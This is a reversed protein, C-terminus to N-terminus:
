KLKRFMSGYRNSSTTKQNNRKTDPITKTLSTSPLSVNATRKVIINSQHQKIFKLVEDRTNNVWQKQTSLRVDIRHINYKVSWEKLVMTFDITNYYQLIEEGISPKGISTNVVNHFAHINRVLHDITPNININFNDYSVLHRKAHKSCFSCPVNVCINRILDLITKKHSNYFSQTLTLPFTHLFMWTIPAWYPTKTDSM